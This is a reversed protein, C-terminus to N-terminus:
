GSVGHSGRRWRRLRRARAGQHRGRTPAPHARDRSNRGAAASMVLAFTRGRRGAHEIEGHRPRYSGDPRSRYDEQDKAERLATFSTM